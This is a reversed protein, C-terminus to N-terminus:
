DRLHDRNNRLIWFTCIMSNDCDMLEVEVGANLDPIYSREEGILSFSAAEKIRLVCVCVCRMVM